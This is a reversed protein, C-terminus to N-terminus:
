KKSEKQRALYQTHLKVAEAYRSKILEDDRKPTEDDRHSKKTFVHLVYIAEEFKAVYMLRFTRDDDNVKIESLGGKLHKM